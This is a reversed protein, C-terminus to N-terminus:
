RKESQRKAFFIIFFGLLRFFFCFIRPPNGGAALTIKVKVGANNAKGCFPKPQARLGM